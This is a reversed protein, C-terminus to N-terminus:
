IYRDRRLLVLVYIYCLSFFLGILFLFIFNSRLTVLFSRPEQGMMELENQNRVSEDEYTKFFNALKESVSQLDKDLSEEGGDYDDDGEFILHVGCQKLELGKDFPPNRKSVCFTDGDKLIAILQHYDHFRCLHIHEEDTRPVGCINLVTSFLTKGQKLVNAQVDLVGPMHERTQGSFWEPLKGGPMSLNQLNKLVVKSLRKRIQSSCAVCGSLYLRRLSKLGELGPIDRVKVCNTLKLEKLSELNSMDHITELAYCNEVNLEILSSPLSPLSILQTCNPLSLVKLISLGKLSSPLKQFDNMGLKLTELQSLKEFEDPIKGSIRWSRADLETLLTLNCFSPTLVFSNHNEEPEALFSNENTNLNPRKAIRLTRLSSLRGFSEPLSAVCTEEMFFHYLSKLNGISAPLKSLMKCKNLRLTVLNELWGISEPLERINGNFMNLTTLFALHGISEPLYELNKCNMMELKRLLKMEGIEDPLDTITTGDLQLEVVSALTKISNPLKSLFKCNGVSLERLYYLSGITSPLEKIKTSNFFLQTLSILSGISDPIVTLSECWMLNLRELNNLSGISDPLEELGSQYLSLEKLSCLHGISSPLRRLHKCGELVLRELKTLRFISRPLETIATGDAHLAKLSKLIGINEPLSKLKTCGSLFLSELQKLGSVDIPLNILSSCRTLKLSRLTSLSGISDHINTLNICNELDIKELRRCGSLDPIATLEICYSLNLVMLNRPVQKYDNWGWLTEIKKSNKLDLVALERPWSKLPMHKLPCGQWQLWKLEAPLFKGELRRNNIQLQRLNVMPEFSKTHLIVEKNEEAQPHLYNKLCLCQEIIGGLVNRLSSRWQLNTSFGSEAKSRYFRDEEFDLVIGQICRTGMHGKLVSMIEARDWLRSRKGPDVISEDVVIQRGMDRIQDHMWLTNDEDTIKILCKQVLVTIAIEGRFGCGRLVDIVDDRKMGMQVFLCAMDLFICKEEEDLADYSIKLVDQLHKPRIQRLKEVADEWEEVRRKDFLFSGFVELALPMRGTLSVIKKSLNLFNEPPKNRRLAHNSFLELAEDFNLEEVEYLENVHNKILVTDRTTIIVRSGDYFWERKGILADLQKVDDVDDLVLLVRNERAKVHDSIITPSGPEPFLDEIIKTRLSVLGDQKSSVERVNSIFCRHEFHNLLNNFLAKALTTKGVGGMGYLGLVKVGNSQVQLVKMLKEVREDLGVAFKPAGLPTNSLEKMIRQVLLRILTDEESDNFPWGSVGGLKNFAERWMSVENKGFRREHEVFGAEFPGKQDRVHSPDVRYFVPLVLRGTDCIKTLEELCWHSTAYSESIIVIFAASDDIAEMLGQKIEEGRELGVDDLFVRVGRAELSSYLGKTITDRTDIGRFSLFVDWRLRFAGPTPATVDSEPPSKYPM